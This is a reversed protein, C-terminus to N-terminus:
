LEIARATGHGASLPLMKLEASDESQVKGTFDKFIIYADTLEERGDETKLAGAMPLRGVITFGLRQWIKVSAVNNVYVLNFVSGKYGASPGYHLFSRGLVGGLGLGRGAPPVIFGANCLHSSRGPYNPKIYYFGAVEKAYDLSALDPLKTLNDVEVGDEPISSVASISILQPASLFFGVFLDYGLFYGEFEVMNMPGRQPYTVGRELEGNFVEALYEIVGRPLRLARRGGASLSAYAAQEVGEANFPIIVVAQRKMSQARQPLAYLRPRLTSPDSGAPRPVHGYAM